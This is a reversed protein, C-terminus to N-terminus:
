STRGRAYESSTRSVRFQCSVYVASLVCRVQRVAGTTDLEDHFTKCCPRTVQPQRVGVESGYNRM